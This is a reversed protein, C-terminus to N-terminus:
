ARSDRCAPALSVEGVKIMLGECRSETAKVMFGEIADRGLQSDCCDVHSFRAIAKEEPVFAPFRSYLKDRRERFPM